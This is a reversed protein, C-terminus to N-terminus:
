SGEKERWRRDHKRTAQAAFLQTATPGTREAPSRLPRLKPRLCRMPQREVHVVVGVVQGRELSVRILTGSRMPGITGLELVVM